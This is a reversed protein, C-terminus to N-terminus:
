RRRWRAPGDAPSCRRSISSTAERRSAAGPTATRGPTSTRRRRSPPPPSKRVSTTAPEAGSGCMVVAVTVRPPAQSISDVVAAPVKVGSRLVSSWRRMACVVSSNAEASTRAPPRVGRASLVPLEGAREQAPAALKAQQADVHGLRVAPDLEVLDRRQDDGLVHGARRRKARGVARLGIEADQWDQHEAGVVLLLPVQRSQHRALQNASIREAFRPRTGVRQPGPGPGCALGIAAERQRALLHPDGVAAKGVDDDDEGLHVALVEGGEDDFARKAADGAPLLFVLQAQVARRRRRDDQLVHRHRGGVQEPSIPLPWLTAKLTSLKPRKFSPAIHVPPQLVAMPSDAFYAALRRCNPWGMALKPAM